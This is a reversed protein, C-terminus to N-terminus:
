NHCAPEKTAARWSRLQPMCVSLQPMGTPDLKGVLSRIRAGQMPLAVLSTGVWGKQPLMKPSAPSRLDSWPKTHLTSLVPRPIQTHPPIRPTLGKGPKTAEEPHKILAPVGVLFHPCSSPLKQFRTTALYYCRGPDPIAAM